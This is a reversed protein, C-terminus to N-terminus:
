RALRLFRDIESIELRLSRRRAVTEEDEGWREIQYTEDL